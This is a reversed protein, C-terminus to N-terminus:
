IHQNQNYACERIAELFKHESATRNAIERNISPIDANGTYGVSLGGWHLGYKEALEARVKAVRGHIENYLSLMILGRQAGSATDLKESLTRRINESGLIQNAMSAIDSQAGLVQKDDMEIKKNDKNIFIISLFIGIPIVFFKM